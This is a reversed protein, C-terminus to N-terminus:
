MGIVIGDSRPDSGGWLVGTERDRMIVQAKGFLEREVVEEVMEVQHGVDRLAEVVEEAFPEELRVRSKALCKPGANSDIDAVLFRPANIATQPDYGYDVMNSLIQVHGQPQMFGGMCGFAAYLEGTDEHTAMAPIITHYPRKSATHM